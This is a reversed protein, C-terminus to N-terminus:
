CFRSSICLTCLLTCSLQPKNM